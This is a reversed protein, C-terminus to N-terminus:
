AKNKFKEDILDMATKLKEWSFPNRPEYFDYNNGEWCGDWCEEIEDDFYRVSDYFPISSYIILGDTTLIYHRENLHCKGMSDIKEIGVFGMKELRSIFDQWNM